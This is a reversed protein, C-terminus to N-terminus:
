GSQPQIKKKEFLQYWKLVQSAYRENLAKTHSNYNGVGQQFHRTETLAQALIWAGVAVNICPNYQIDHQTIGYQSLTPLWRSNIQLPGYDFTGNPNKHAMGSRGNEIKMISLLLTAPLHYTVAAYNVCQAPVDNFLIPLM